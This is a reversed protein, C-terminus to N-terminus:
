QLMTMSVVVPSVAGSITMGMGLFTGGMVLAALRKTNVCGGFSERVTVFLKQTLPLLSLLAFSGLGTVFISVLSCSM